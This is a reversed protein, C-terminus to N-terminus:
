HHGNRVRFIILNLGSLFLYDSRMHLLHQCESQFCFPVENDLNIKQKEKLLKLSQGESIMKLFIRQSAVKTLCFFETLTWNKSRFKRRLYSSLLQVEKKIFPCQYPCRIIFLESIGLWSFGFYTQQYMYTYIRKMTGRHLCSQDYCNNACSLLQSILAQFLNLGSDWESTFQKEFNIESSSLLNQVYSCHDIIDKYRDGCNLYIIKQINM